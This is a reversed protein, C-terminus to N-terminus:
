IMRKILKDMDKDRNGLAGKMKYPRKIGEYGKRPPHLRITQKLGLEKMSSKDAYLLEVIEDLKKNEALKNNDKTKGWKSLMNKLTEKEIDGWTTYDKVKQFMNKHIKNENIIACNNVANLSLTELTKRTSPKMGIGSRVRVIIKM